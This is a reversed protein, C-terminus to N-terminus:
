WTEIAAAAFCWVVALFAIMAVALVIVFMSFFLVMAIRQGAPMQHKWFFLKQRKQMSRVEPYQVWSVRDALWEQLRISLKM